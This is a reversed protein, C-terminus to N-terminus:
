CVGHHMHVACVATFPEGNAALTSAGRWLPPPPGVEFVTPPPQPTEVSGVEFVTAPPQMGGNEEFVSHPPM